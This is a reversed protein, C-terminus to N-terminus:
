SSSTARGFEMHFQFEVKKKGAVEDHLTRSNTRATDLSYAFANMPWRKSKVRTSMFSSVYDVIDVEGKTKDYFVLMHPKKRQDRWTKVTDHMTTLCLINKMGSKKKDIWSVMVKEESNDDNYAYVNSKVERHKIDKMGPPIGIRNEKLTGVVTINRDLLWESLPISTFYRDM